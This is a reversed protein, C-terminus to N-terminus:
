PEDEEFQILQGRQFLYEMCSEESDDIVRSLAYGRILCIPWFIIRLATRFPRFHMEKIEYGLDELVAVMGAIGIIIVLVGILLYIIGFLAWM